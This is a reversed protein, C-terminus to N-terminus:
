PPSLRHHPRSAGFVRLYMEGSRLLVRRKTTRATASYKPKSRVVLNVFLHQWSGGRRADRRIAVTGVKRSVCPSFGLTCNSGNAPSIEGHRVAVRRALGVPRTDGPHTALILRSSILANFGLRRVDSRLKAGVTLADGNVLKPLRVSLVSRSQLRLPLHDRRLSKTMRSSSEVGKARALRVVGIRAHGGGISGDPRNNGLILRDGSEARRNTASIRVQIQCAESICAAKRGAIITTRSPFVLVCHHQRDPRRQLCRLKQAPGLSYSRSSNPEALVLSARVTPAYRYVRGACRPSRKLCDTTVMLEANARLRDGRRLSPLRSHRLRLAVSESGAAPANIPVSGKLEAHPKTSIASVPKRSKTSGGAGTPAGAFM